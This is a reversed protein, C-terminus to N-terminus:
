WRRALVTVINHCSIADISDNTIVDGNGELAV